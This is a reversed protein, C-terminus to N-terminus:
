LRQAGVVAAATWSTSAPTASQEMAGSWLGSVDDHAEQTRRVSRRRRRATRPQQDRRDDDDPPRPRSLQGSM